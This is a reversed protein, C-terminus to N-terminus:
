QLIFGPFVRLVQLDYKDRNIWLTVARVLEAIVDRVEVTLEYRYGGVLSMDVVERALEPRTVHDLLFRRGPLVQHRVGAGYEQDIRQAPRYRSKRLGV